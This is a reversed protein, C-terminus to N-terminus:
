NRFCRRIRDAAQTIWGGNMRWIAKCVREYQNAEIHLTDPLIFSCADTVNPGASFRRFKGRGHSGSGDLGINRVLSVPPFLVLGDEKFVSWYWHIAWSDQKGTMQRALMSAYDYAGNLNFRQRLKKNKYIVEWGSALPDFHEWAREWTAWGWSVTVPLFMARQSNRLEPVEYMYGSVQFVEENDAYRDIAQNIYRLFGSGFELDDEVVIVRGFQRVTDTVGQIVSRALGLNKKSFYYLAKEGLMARALERTAVVKDEEDANRPGDGYIIVPSNSFGECRMLSTLTKQLHVPRRYAFILIPAYNSSKKM